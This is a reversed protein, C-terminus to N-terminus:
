GGRGGGRERQEGRVPNSSVGPMIDMMRTLERRFLETGGFGIFGLMFGLIQNFKIPNSQDIAYM